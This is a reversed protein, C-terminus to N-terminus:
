QLVDVVCELDVALLTRGAGTVGLMCLEVETMPIGTGFREAM